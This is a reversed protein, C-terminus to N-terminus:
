YSASGAAFVGAIMMIFVIIGLVGFITDIWGLVKGATAAKGLKEAKTAQVIAIPGLIIGFLFLGVIGCILSVQSAKEAEVQQPSQTYYAQPAFQQQQANHDPYSM